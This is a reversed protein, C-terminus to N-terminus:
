HSAAPSNFVWKIGKQLMANEIKSHNLNSLAERLEREAGVFNTGNDSRM